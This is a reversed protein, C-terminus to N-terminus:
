ISVYKLDPDYMSSIRLITYLLSQPDRAVLRLTLAKECSKEYGVVFSFIHIPNPKETESFLFWELIPYYSEPALMFYADYRM